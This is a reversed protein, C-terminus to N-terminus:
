RVLGLEKYVQQYTKIDNTILTRARGSSRYSDTLDMFNKRNFEQFERSDWADKFAKELIRVRDEPTEKRVFFGRWRLLPTINVGIDKLSPVNSFGKARENQLTLIPKMKKADLFASVDGPQEFLADVHGGILAGYREAPKDFGVQTTRFGLAKELQIMAVREMSGASGVNAVMVEGPHEKAYKLFAQWNPFRADDPRVYLQNFTIQTIAVPVWDEAPNERIKGSAFLTAADDIHQLVVYGDAPATMFEQLAASGGGGPKNVAQIPAKLVKRLPEQIARVLQDSGGGEGYPIVITIPRSPFKEQAAAGGVLGLVLAVAVLSGTRKLLEMRPSRM